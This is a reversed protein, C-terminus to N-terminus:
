VNLVIVDNNKIKNEELSKLKNIKLGNVTFINNKKFFAKYEDYLRKEINYFVDTNKCIISYNQIKKDSSLFNVTMMKEGEKLEFPYRSLKKKLENIEKIMSEKSNYKENSPQNVSSINIMTNGAEKIFNEFTERLKEYEKKEEILKKELKEKEIQIQKYKEELIQYKNKEEILEKELKEKEIQISKYEKEMTKIKQQFESNMKCGEEFIQNITKEEILEKELKEKEIQISKYKKNNDEFILNSKNYKEELIKYKNKEEILIKELKEKEIQISKYKEEILLNNNKEISLEEKM